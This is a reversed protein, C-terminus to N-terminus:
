DSVKDSSFKGQIDSRFFKGVSPAKYMRVFMFYPVDYFEYVSDGSFFNVVLKKETADYGFAKVCTSDTSVMRMKKKDM